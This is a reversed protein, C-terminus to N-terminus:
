EDNSVEVIKYQKYKKSGHRVKSFVTVLSSKKMKLVKALETISEAVAIPLEFEDDTVKLFLTM